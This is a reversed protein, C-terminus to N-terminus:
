GRRALAEIASAGSRSRSRTSTGSAAPRAQRRRLRRAILPGFKAIWRRLSEHSVEVGRELPLEEVARLSLSFRLYLWVAHAILAPPFRHRKYSSPTIGSM